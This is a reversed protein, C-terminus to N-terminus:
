PGTWLTDLRRQGDGSVGERRVLGRLVLRRGGLLGGPETRWLLDYIASESRQGDSDICDAAILVPLRGDRRDSGGDTLELLRDAIWEAEIRHELVTTQEATGLAAPFRVTTSQLSCGPQAAVTIGNADAAMTTLMVRGRAARETKTAASREAQREAAADQREQWNNWFTLGAIVVGAVAITEGLTIWRRRIARAEAQRTAQQQPDPHPDESPQSGPLDTM